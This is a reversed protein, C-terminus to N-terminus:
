LRDATDQNSMLWWPDDFNEPQLQGLSTKARLADAHPGLSALIDRDVLVRRIPSKSEYREAVMENLTRSFKKAHTERTTRFVLTDLSQWRSFDYEVLTEKLFTIHFSDCYSLHLASITPFAKAFQSSAYFDFSQLTLYKLAPFTPRPHANNIVQIVRYQPCDLWLSELNPLSVATLFKDALNDQNSFSLARLSPMTIKDDLRANRFTGNISLASLLPCAAALESLVRTNMELSSFYASTHFYLTTVNTLPPLRRLSDIRLATLSPAGGTLIRPEVSLLLNTAILQDHDINVNDDNQIRIRQLLPAAADAMKSLIAGTTSEHYAFVVLTRWRAIHQLAVDVVPLITADAEELFRDSDWIDFRVHIPCDQSRKLYSTVCELSDISFVDINTWLLPTGLAIDRWRSCVHSMAVECPIRYRSRRQSSIGFTTKSPPSHHWIPIRSNWAGNFFPTDWLIESRKLVSPVTFRLWFDAPHYGSRLLKPDEWGAKWEDYRGPVIVVRNDKIRIEWMRKWIDSDEVPGSALSCGAPYVSVVLMKLAPLSRLLQRVSNAFILDNAENANARRALQLHSLHPLPGFPALMSTPSHWMDSPECFRLHTLTKSVDMVPQCGARTHVGNDGDFSQITIATVASDASFKACSIDVPWRFSPAILTRTGACAAIINHVKTCAADSEPWWTVVLKKVHDTLFARSKSHATHHFLQVTKASDLVITRYLIVDVVKCFAKSALALASPSCELIADEFIKVALEIPLSLLPSQRSAVLSLRRPRTCHRLETVTITAM